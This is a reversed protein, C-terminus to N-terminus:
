GSTVRFDGQLFAWIGGQPFEIVGESPLWQVDAESTGLYTLAADRLTLGQVTVNRVPAAQSGSINLLVKTRTLALAEQGTPAETGNFTLYLAEEEADYFYEGPADCEEKVNEIWWDWAKGPQAPTPGGQDCGVQLSRSARQADPASAVLNRM